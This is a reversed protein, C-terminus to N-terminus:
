IEIGIDCHQNLLVLVQEDTLRMCITYSIMNFANALSDQNM